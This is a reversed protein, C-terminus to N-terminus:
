QEIRRIWGNGEARYEPNPISAQGTLM